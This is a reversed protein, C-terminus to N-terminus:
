HLPGALICREAGHDVENREWSSYIATACIEPWFSPDHGRVGGRDREMGLLPRGEPHVPINQCAQQSDMKGLLPGRGKELIRSMIDDVLIYSQSLMEKSIDDNVSKGEQSSLDVILRWRNGGGNKPIVGFPSCHVGGRDRLDVQELRVALVKNCIYTEVAEPHEAASM